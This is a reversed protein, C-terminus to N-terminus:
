CLNSGYMEVPCKRVKEEARELWTGQEEAHEESVPPMAELATNEQSHQSRLSHLLRELYDGAAQAKM